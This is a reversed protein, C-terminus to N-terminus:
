QELPCRYIDMQSPDFRWWAGSNDWLRIANMQADWKVIVWMSTKKRHISLWVPKGDMGRLEELTLPENQERKLQEHLVALAYVLIDDM